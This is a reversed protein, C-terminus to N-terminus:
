QILRDNIQKMVQQTREQSIGSCHLSVAAFNQDESPIFGTRTNHVLMASVLTVLVLGSIGIWQTKLAM